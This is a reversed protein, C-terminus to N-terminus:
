AQQGVLSVGHRALLVAVDRQSWGQKRRLIRLIFARINAIAQRATVLPLPFFFSNAVSLLWNRALIYLHGYADCFGLVFQSLQQCCNLFALAYCNFAM